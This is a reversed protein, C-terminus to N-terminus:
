NARLARWRRPRKALFAWAGLTAAQLVVGAVFLRLATSPGPPVSALGRLWHEETVCLNGKETLLFARSEGRVAGEHDRWELFLVPDLVERAESLTLGIERAVDSVSVSRREEAMALIRALARFREATSLVSM